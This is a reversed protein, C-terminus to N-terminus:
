PVLAAVRSTSAGVQKLFALRRKCPSLVFQGFSAGTAITRETRTTVDIILLQGQPRNDIVVPVGSDLVSATPEQGKWAKTWEPALAETVYKDIMALPKKGLPMAGVVLEKESVWVYPEWPGEPNIRDVAHDSLMELRRSSKTWLWLRVNGGKTSLMALRQGDPSWRPAWYGSGDHAGNTINKPPEGTISAIWVDAHDNDILASYGRFMETAKARKIVYAVWRGDPSLSTEGIGEM